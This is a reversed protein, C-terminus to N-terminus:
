GRRPANEGIARSIRIYWIDLAANGLSEMISRIDIGMLSYTLPQRVLRKERYLPIDWRSIGTRSDFIANERIARSIRTM